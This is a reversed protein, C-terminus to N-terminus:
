SGKREYEKALADLASIMEAELAGIAELEDNGFSSKARVIKQICDLQQLKVLPAGSQILDCGRRYLTLIMRLIAMQREPSCYM